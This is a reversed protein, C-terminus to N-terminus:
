FCGAIELACPKCYPPAPSRIQHTPLKRFIKNLLHTKSEPDWHLHKKIPSKLKLSWSNTTSATKCAHFHGKIHCHHHRHIQPPTVKHISISNQYNKSKPWCLLCIPPPFMLFFTLFWKIKFLILTKSRSDFKSFFVSTLRATLKGESFLCCLSVLCGRLLQLYLQLYDTCISSELIIWWSRM